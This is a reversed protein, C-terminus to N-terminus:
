QGFSFTFQSESNPKNQDAGQYLFTKCCSFFLNTHPPEEKEM